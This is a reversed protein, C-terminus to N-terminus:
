LKGGDGVAYGTSFCKIYAWLGVSGGIIYDFDCEAYIKGWNSGETICEVVDGAEWAWECWWDVKAYSYPIIIVQNDIFLFIGRACLTFMTWGWANKGYVKHWRIYM